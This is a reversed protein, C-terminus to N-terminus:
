EYAGGFGYIAVEGTYDENRVMTIRILIGWKDATKTSNEFLHPTSSTAETTMDEWTPSDDFGNNCVEIKGTANSIDWQPTLMIKSAATSTVIPNKTTFLIQGIQRSFAIYKTSSMGYADTAIIELTNASNNCTIWFEETLEVTYKTDLDAEFTKITYGNLKEIVTVKDGSDDSISYTIEPMETLEGLYTKGSYNITPGSNSKKFTYRRYATSTNNTASIELTNIENMNLTKFVNDTIEFNLTYGQAPNKLTRILNGNLKEKIIIEDEPYLTTVAYSISFSDNKIGLDADAGSITPPNKIEELVPLYGINATNSDPNDIEIDSKSIEELAGSKTRGIFVRKGNALVTATACYFTTYHGNNPDELNFDIQSLVKPDLTKFEDATLFKLAYTRGNLLLTQASDNIIRTKFDFAIAKSILINKGDVIAEIWKWKLVPDITDVFTFNAYNPYNRYYSPLQKIDYYTGEKYYWRLTGFTLIDGISM